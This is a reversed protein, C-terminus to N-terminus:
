QSKKQFLCHVYYNPIPKGMSDTTLVAGPSAKLEAVSCLPRPAIADPESAVCSVKKKDFFRLRCVPSYGADGPIASFVALIDATRTKKPDAADKLEITGSPIPNSATMSTPIPVEDVAVYLENLQPCVPIPALCRGSSCIENGAANCDSPQTCSKGTPVRLIDACLMPDTSVPLTGGDLYGGLLGRMWHQAPFQFTANPDGPYRPYKAMNNTTFPCSMAAVPSGMLVTAASMM